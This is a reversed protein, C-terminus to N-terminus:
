GEHGRTTNVISLTSRHICHKGFVMHAGFGMDVNADVHSLLMQLDDEPSAIRSLTLIGYPGTAQECKCIQYTLLGCMCIYICIYVYVCM